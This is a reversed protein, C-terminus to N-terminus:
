VGNIYIIWWPLKTTFHHCFNLRLNHNLCCWSASYTFVILMLEGYKITKRYKHQLCIKTKLNSVRLSRQTGTSWHKSASRGSIFLTDECIYIYIATHTWVTDLVKNIYYCNILYYFNFKNWGSTTCVSYKSLELKILLM